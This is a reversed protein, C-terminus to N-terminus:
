GNALKLFFRRAFGETIHTGKEIGLVQRVEHCIEQKERKTKFMKMADFSIRVKQSYEPEDPPGHKKCWYSPSPLPGGYMAEEFAMFRARKRCKHEQCRAHVSANELLERLREFERILPRLNPKESVVSEAWTAIGYLRVTHRLMAHEM